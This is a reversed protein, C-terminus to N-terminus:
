ILSIINHLSTVHAAAIHLTCLNGRKTRISSLMYINSYAAPMNSARQKAGPCRLCYGLKWQPALCGFHTQEYGGSRWLRKM